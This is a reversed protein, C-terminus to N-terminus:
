SWMNRKMTARLIGLRQVSPSHIKVTIIARLERDLSPMFKAGTWDPVAEMCPCSEVRTEYFVGHRCVWKGKSRWIARRVDFSDQVCRRQLNEWRTRDCRRIQRVRALFKGLAAWQNASQESLLNALREAVPAAASHSQEGLWDRRAAGYRECQFLMHVEDENYINGRTRWCSLCVRVRSSEEGLPQHERWWTRSPLLDRAFFNAAYRALWLDGTFLAALASRHTLDPVMDLCMSLPPGPLTLRLTLMATKAHADMSQRSVVRQVLAAGAESRLLDKFRGVIESIIGRSRRRMSKQVASPMSTTWYTEGAMNRPM